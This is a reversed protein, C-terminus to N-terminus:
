LQSLDSSDSYSDELLPLQHAEALGLHRTELFSRYLARLVIRADRGISSDSYDPYATVVFFGSAEDLIEFTPYAEANLQIVLRPRRIWPLPRLQNIPGVQQSYSNNQSVRIRREGEPIPHDHEEAAPDLWTNTILQQLYQRTRIINRHRRARPHITLEVGSLESLSDRSDPDGRISSVESDSNSDLLIHFNNNFSM